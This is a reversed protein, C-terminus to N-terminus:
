NSGKLTAELGPIDQLSEKRAGRELSETALLPSVSLESWGQWLEEVSAVISSSLGKDQPQLVLLWIADYGGAGPVGGGIVGPLTCCADLLRTQEPPEIPVGSSKGMARMGDRISKTLRRTNGFLQAATVELAEIPSQREWEDGPERALKDVTNAYETPDEEYKESLRNIIDGLGRNCKDLGEWLQDAVVPEAKKWKLVNGVMSPTDSGSDVDALMIRTLPPLKFPSVVHNWANNSPSLTSLLTSGNPKGQMIEGIVNPEFRQYVQSGFVASSVDFGSGVKGQALCHVYQAVNHALERGENSAADSSLSDPPIAGFHLLLASVLSTILSASSGLGTKHVQSIPCGQPLFPPISNLSDLTPPLNRTTLSARQSYFDNAALVHIDLGQGLSSIFSDNGRIALAIALTGELATQVFRNKSGTADEVQQVHVTDGEAKVDYAWIANEFQPSNVIIRGERSASQVVTYFRSSTSVVLGPFRHDLVLYGGAILVKGPASVVTAM